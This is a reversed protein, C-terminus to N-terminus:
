FLFNDWQCKVKSCLWSSCSFWYKGFLSSKPLSLWQKILSQTKRQHSCLMQTEFRRKWSFWFVPHILKTSSSFLVVFKTHYVTKFCCSNIRELQGSNWFCIAPLTSERHFIQPLIQERDRNTSDGAGSWDRAEPNVHGEEGHAEKWVKREKRKLNSGVKIWYLRM